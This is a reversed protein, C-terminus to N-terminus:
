GVGVKNQSRMDSRQGDPSSRSSIRHCLTRSGFFQFLIAQALTISSVIWIRRPTALPPVRKRGEKEKAKRRSEFLVPSFAAGGLLVKMGLAQSKKIKRHKACGVLTKLSRWLVTMRGAGALRPLSAGRLNTVYVFTRIRSTSPGRRHEDASARRLKGAAFM